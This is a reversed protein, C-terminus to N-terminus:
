DNLSLDTRIGQVIAVLDEELPRLGFGSYKAVIIGDPDILFRTPLVHINYNRGIGNENSGAFAFLGAHDREEFLAENIDEDPEMSVSLTQFVIPSMAAFVMDREALEQLFTKNM